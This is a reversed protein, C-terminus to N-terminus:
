LYEESACYKNEYNACQASLKHYLDKQDEFSIEGLRNVRREQQNDESESPYYDGEATDLVVLLLRRDYESLEMGSRLKERAERLDQFNLNLNM